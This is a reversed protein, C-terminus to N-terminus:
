EGKIKNLKGRYIHELKIWFKSSGGLVNELRSAITPTLILSGKLLKNTQEKSLNIKLAFETVPMGRDKLLEKITEGPPIAIIYHSCM